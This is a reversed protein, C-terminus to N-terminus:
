FQIVTNTIAGLRQEENTRLGALFAVQLLPPRLCTFCLRCSTELPQLM